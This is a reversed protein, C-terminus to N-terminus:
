DPVSRGSLRRLPSGVIKELCFPRGRLSRTWFSDVRAEEPVPRVSGSRMLKAHRGAAILRSRKGLWAQENTTRAM